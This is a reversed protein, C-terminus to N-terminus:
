GEPGHSLWPADRQDAVPAQRAPAPDLCMDQREGPPQPLATDLRGNDGAKGAGVRDLANWHIADVAQAHGIAGIAKDGPSTPMTRRRRSAPCYSMTCTWQLM